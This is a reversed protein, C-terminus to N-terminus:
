RKKPQATRFPKMTTDKPKPRATRTPPPARRRGDAAAGPPADPRRRPPPADSKLLGPRGQVYDARHSSLGDIPRRQRAALEIAAALTADRRGVLNTVRGTGGGRGTRGVRHLYDVPNLPFDFNIVHAARVTDIGRAMVDTAVLIRARGEAFAAAQPARESQPVWGHAEAVDEHGRERLLRAVYLASDRTNCFVITADRPPSGDLSRARAWQETSMRLGRDVADLFKDTRDLATVPLFEQTVRDPVLHARATKVERHRPFTDAMIQKVGEAVTAAALVCQVHGRDSGHFPGRMARLQAQLEGADAGAEGGARALLEQARTHSDKAANAAGVVGQFLKRLDEGFGQSAMTDAEDAVLFRVDGLSVHGQAVMEALRGPTGVVLDIPLALRRAQEAVSAGGFVGACSFRAARSLDKAVGLIQQGLERTPVLVLARPRRPRTTIGLTLEDTKIRQALPLL